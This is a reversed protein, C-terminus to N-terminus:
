IKRFRISAGRIPHKVNPDMPTDVSKANLLCTEEFIDMAYKRQSIVLGDKSQAVEIDLFYRLKGLDKTQFKNSLHQKLQLIGQQDSGIIVIDDVYVILYICWQTSHHYFVSHDAENCIMGIEHVVSNFRGFCARPSQKLGYLSKHPRCVMTSSEGQAVFGPPQEMYLTTRIDKRLAIPLDHELQLAPDPPPTPPSYHLSSLKSLSPVLKQLKTLSLHGLQAHITHLSETASCTKSSTSLYYLGQSVCGVGITRGSSRDYLVSAVSISPLIHVTGVGQSRTQTGNASTITPLFGSTSLSSFLCHEYKPRPKSNSPGGRSRNQNNGSTTSMDSVTFSGLIQDRTTSYEQPLGHLALLMFFSNRQDLEKKQEVPNSAVPPLFENFYHLASHVTGLYLSISGDLTKLTIINLLHHFVGYLHQTDNTYLAKAQSWVSECTLHLRFIQKVDPHLTSKIVSCLQADIHSWKSTETVSVKEPNQTLHDEFGQGRLWLKIDAAWSDYNLENLKEVSLPSTIYNTFISKTESQSTM